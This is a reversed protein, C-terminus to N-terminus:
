GEVPCVWGFPDESRGYQIDTLTKLLNAAVPGSQNRNISSVEGRYRLQGVPSVVAATGAGFVETIKGSAIDAVVDNIDVRAERASYGLTPALKLISDRTIGGLISGSLAPTVLESNDYVFFINM